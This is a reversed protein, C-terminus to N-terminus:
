SDSITGSCDLEELKQDHWFRAYENDLTMHHLVLRKVTTVLAPKSLVMGRGKRRRGDYHILAIEIDGQADTRCRFLNYKRPLLWYKLSGLVEKDLAMFITADDQVGPPRPHQRFIIQKVETM